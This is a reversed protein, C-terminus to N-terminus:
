RSRYPYRDALVAGPAPRRRPGPSDYVVLLSTDAGEGLLAIGEPHDISETSGAGYPLDLLHEFRDRPVLADDGARLADPWRLVVADSDLAMTPGALLLLDSGDLQLDRIGLGHLDLFLKRYRRKGDLRRLRLVGEGAVDPALLLIVAYGRLVPGRLGLLIRDETAAIGEVNFGNDKGPIALFPALHPDDELLDTLADRRRRGPLRAAARGDAARSLLGNGPDVPIRALLHQNGKRRVSALRRLERRPDEAAREPRAKRRRSSHSGVLWLYGDHWTLGEVDIEEDDGGPLELCSGVAFGAHAGYEGPGAPSLRALSTGEDTGLWLDEGVQVAASLNGTFSEGPGVGAFSLLVPQPAARM